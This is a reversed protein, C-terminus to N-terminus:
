RVEVEGAETKKLHAAVLHVPHQVLLVEGVVRGHRHVLIVGRAPGVGEVVPEEVVAHDRGAGGVGVGTRIPRPATRFSLEDRAYTM